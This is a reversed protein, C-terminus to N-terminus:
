LFLFFCCRASWREGKRGREVSVSSLGHSSVPSPPQIDDPFLPRLLFWDWMRFQSFNRKNLSRPRHNYPLRLQSICTGWYSHELYFSARPQTAPPALTRDALPMSLVSAQFHRIHVPAQLLGNRSSGESALPTHSGYGLIM